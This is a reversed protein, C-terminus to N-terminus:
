RHIDIICREEYIFEVAGIRLEFHYLYHLIKIRLTKYQLSESSYLPIITVASGQSEYFRAYLKQKPTSNVHFYVVSDRSYISSCVSAVELDRLFECLVSSFLFWNHITLRIAAAATTWSMKSWRANRIKWM